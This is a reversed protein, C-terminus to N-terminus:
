KKPSAAGLAWVQVEEYPVEGCLSEKTETNYFFPVGGCLGQDLEELKKANADDHWAESREVTIGEERELKAVLPEMRECHPCEKGYFMLLM